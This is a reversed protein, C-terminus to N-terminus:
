HSPGESDQKEQQEQDKWLTLTFVKKFLMQMGGSKERRAM